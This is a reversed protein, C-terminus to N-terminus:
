EEIDEKPFFKLLVAKDWNYNVLEISNFSKVLMTRYSAGYKNEIEKKLESSYFRQSSENMILKPIDLAVMKQYKPIYTLGIKEALKNLIPPSFNNLTLAHVMKADAFGKYSPNLILLMYKKSPGPKGNKDMPKYRAEVIMGKQLASTSLAVRKGRIIKTRHTGIFNKAM